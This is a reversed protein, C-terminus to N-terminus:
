AGRRIARPGIWFRSQKTPFTTVLFQRLERWQAPEFAGSYIQFTASGSFQLMFVGRGSGYAFLREWPFTETRGWTRIFFESSSWEIRRPVFMFYVALPFLTVPIALSADYGAEWWYGTQWRQIVAGLVTVALVSLLVRLITRSLSPLLVRRQKVDIM